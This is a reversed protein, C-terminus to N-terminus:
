FDLKDAHEQMLEKLAERAKKGGRDGKFDQVLEHDFPDISTNRGPSDIGWSSPKAYFELAEKLKDIRHEQTEFGCGYGMMFWSLYQLQQNADVPYNPNKIEMCELQKKFLDIIRTDNM